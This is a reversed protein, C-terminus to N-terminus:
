ETEASTAHEKLIHEISRVLRDWSAAPHKSVTVFDPVIFVNAVGRLAFLSSALPDEAAEAAAGYSYLGSPVFRVGDITFKLSDPNPTPHTNVTPM